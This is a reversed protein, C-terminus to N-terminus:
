IRANGQRHDSGCQVVCLNVSSVGKHMKIYVYLLVLDELFLLLDLGEPSGEVM